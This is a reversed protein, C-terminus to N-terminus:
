GLEREVVRVLDHAGVSVGGSTVVVDAELGRAIADRHADEDDAVPALRTVLAGVGALLAALMAGNSEYIEGPGLPEGPKRLETGTTLVAVRPRRTCRVTEVGAAALAGIRAASLVHGAPLVVAGAAVDGGRPRVHRGATHADAIEVTEGNDVAVEVPVIADAGDPVVGGTSIAMAEGAALAGPAPRGAAVRFTVPLTGPTDAARVAFGDMASSPFPPLDVRATAPEALVRGAAEALPVDEAPLPAARALVAALAEEITLLDAVPRDVSTTTIETTMGTRSSSALMPGSTSSSAPTSSPRSSDHSTTNTSSPEVSPVKATSVRRCSSRDFTRVTRSRRLKPLAAASCAPNACAAPSMTTVISPSPWSSGASIGRSSAFSSSPKSRTEPQFVFRWSGSVRRSGDFSKLPTVPRTEPSRRCSM